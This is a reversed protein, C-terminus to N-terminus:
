RLFVKVNTSCVLAALSALVLPWGELLYKKICTWLLHLLDVTWIAKYREIKNTYSSNVIKFDDEFIATKTLYKSITVNPIITNVSNDIVTDGLLYIRSIESYNQSLVSGDERKLSKLRLLSKNSINSYFCKFCQFCQFCLKVEGSRCNWFLNRFFMNSGSLAANHASCIFRM